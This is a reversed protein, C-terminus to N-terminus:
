PKPLLKDLQPVLEKMEDKATKKNLWVLDLGQYLTTTFEDFGKFSPKVHAYQLADLFVQHNIKTAQKLYVDSYAIKKLVPCAFGLKTLETQGKPGCVYKVFRWAAEQQKGAKAIVFGACNLSTARTKGKPLPAVGWKFSKIESYDPVMWHGTTTMAALGSKFSDGYQSARGPDPAVKDKWILDAAFQLAEYAAPQDLMVKTYDKNIIEGGNQWVFESWILEMDTLDLWAGWKEPKGDKNADVTLKRCAQRFTEWTWTGDPEKLGAAKFRDKNYYLVITQFDRPLGYIGDPKQYAELTIPFFDDLFGKEKDIYPKLNLLVGRSYYDPYLPADMAFVDPPNGGALQAQLKNWYTDWDVVIVKVSIDKNEKEFSAVIQKYVKYESPLGWMMFTLNNKASLAPASVGILVLVLLCALLARRM